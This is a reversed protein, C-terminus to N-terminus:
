AISHSFEAQRRRTRRIEDPVSFQERVIQKAEAISIERGDPARIVYPQGTKMTKYIRNVLRTAVACLAQKHHHGKKVMMRWYVSALDPDIKRATDAALYLARKLRNSGSQTIRQGPREMGGSANKTPFLGCFGRIQRENRFRGTRAIVGALLPALTLGIGPISRLANSPHVQQYLIESRKELEAINRNLIRLLEVEQLVEFQLSEFDLRDAHLAKTSEAVQKLSTVLHDVVPGSRPHNGAPHEAIFRMLTDRPTKLVRNPDFYEALIALTLHTTTDPLVPELEPCVWRILDLLRRRSACILEQYRYRQKTLRQLAHHEASPVHVPDLSRNGFNPLAGLLQADALDTKAHESLYRRLAKVRQGKVRIVRVGACELWSAVPFWAMGTPEMVAIIPVGPPVDSIVADVFQKLDSATLRFRLPKGLPIGDDFIQAVQVASIALDIGVTRRQMVREWENATRKPEIGPLV